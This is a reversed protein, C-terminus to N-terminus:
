KLQKIKDFKEEYVKLRNNLQRMRSDNLSSLYEDINSSNISNNRLVYAIDNASMIMIPNIKIIEAM